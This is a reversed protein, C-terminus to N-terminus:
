AWSRAVGVTLPVFGDSPDIRAICCCVSGHSGPRPREISGFGQVCRASTVRVRPTGGDPTTLVWIVHTQPGVEVGQWSIAIHEATVECEIHASGRAALRRALVLAQGDFPDRQLLQGVITRATGLHGQSLYLLALTPSAIPDAATM